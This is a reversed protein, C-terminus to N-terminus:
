QDFMNKILDECSFDFSDEELLLFEDVENNLQENQAIIANVIDMDVAPKISKIHRRETEIATMKITNTDPANQYQPRKGYTTTPADTLPSQHNQQEKSELRRAHNILTNRVKQQLLPSNMPLEVWCCGEPIDNTGNFKTASELFRGGGSTLTFEEIAHILIERKKKRSRTRQYIHVKSEILDMFELNGKQFNHPQTNWLKGDQCFLVDNVRPCETYTVNYDIGADNRNGNENNSM